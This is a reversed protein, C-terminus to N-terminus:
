KTDLGNIIQILKDESMPTYELWEASVNIAKFKSNIHPKSNHCHGHCLIQDPKYKPMRDKFKHDFDGDLMDQYYYHSLLVKKGAVEIELSDHIEKFHGKGQSVKDHNGKILIINGRLYQTYRSPQGMSFDGMHYVVDDPGVVANWKETMNWNMHNVDNYPRQCYKIINAHGFHSDSIFFNM